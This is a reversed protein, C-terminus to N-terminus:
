RSAKVRVFDKHHLIFKYCFLWYVILWSIMFLTSVYDHFIIAAMGGFHYAILGVLSVRIINILATGLVGILITEIKSNLTFPGKLGVFLSLLLLIFSQWGICNWSIYVNIPISDKIMSIGTLNASAELGILKMSSVIMSAEFPVVYNQIVKYLEVKMIIKTLLENFTTVFPMVLFTVCALIIVLQFTSFTIIKAQKMEKDLGFLSKPIAMIDVNGKQEKKWFQWSKLKKTLKQIQKKIKNKM